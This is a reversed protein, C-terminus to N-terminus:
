QPRTMSNRAQLHLEGIRTGTIALAISGVVLLPLTIVAWLVMSFNSATVKDVGFLTLDVTGSAKGLAWIPL